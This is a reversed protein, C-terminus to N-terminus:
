AQYIHCSIFQADRDIEHQMKLTVWEKAPCRLISTPLDLTSAIVSIRTYHDVRPILTVERVISMVRMDSGRPNTVVASDHQTGLDCTANAAFLSACHVRQYVNIDNQLSGEKTCAQAM